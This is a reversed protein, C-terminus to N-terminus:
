WTWPAVQRKPFKPDWTVKSHLMECLSWINIVAAAIAIESPVIRRRTTHGFEVAISVIKRRSHHLLFCLTLWMERRNSIRQKHKRSKWIEHRMWYPRLHWPRIEWLRAVIVSHHVPYFLRRNLKRTSTMLNVLPPYNVCVLTFHMWPSTQTKDPKCFGKFKMSSM